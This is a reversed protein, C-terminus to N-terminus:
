VDGHWAVSSPLAVTSGAVETAGSKVKAKLSAAGADDKWAHTNVQVCKVTSTSAALDGLAYLDKNGVTSSANYTATNDPIDATNAYNAGGTATLQTSSGAASPVLTQIRIDGMFASDSIYFDDLKANGGPVGLVVKDITTATGGNRTDGTFTIKDV